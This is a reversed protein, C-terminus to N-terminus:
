LIKLIKYLYYGSISYTTFYSLRNIKKEYKDNINNNNDNFNYNSRENNNTEIDNVSIKNFLESQIINSYNNKYFIIKINKYEKNILQSLYNSNDLINLHLTKNMISLNVNKCLIDNNEININIDSINNFYHYYELNNIKMKDIRNKNLIYLDNLNKISVKYIKDNEEIIKIDTIIYYNFNNYLTSAIKEINNNKM